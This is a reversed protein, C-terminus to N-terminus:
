DSHAQTFPPTHGLAKTPQPTHHNRAAQTLRARDCPPPAVAGPQPPSIPETMIETYAM